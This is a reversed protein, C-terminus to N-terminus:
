RYISLCIWSHGNRKLGISVPVCYILHLFNGFESWIEPIKKNIRKSLASVLAFLEEDSYTEYHLYKKKSLNSEDLLKDWAMPDYKLQVFRKFELFLWGHM